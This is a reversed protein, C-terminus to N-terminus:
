AATESRAALMLPIVNAAQCQTAFDNLLASKDVCGLGFVHLVYFPLDHASLALQFAGVREIPGHVASPTRRKLSSGAQVYAVEGSLPM